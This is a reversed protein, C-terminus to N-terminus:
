DRRGLEQWLGAETPRVQELGQQWASGYIFPLAGMLFSGAVIVFLMELKRYTIDSHHKRRSWRDSKM